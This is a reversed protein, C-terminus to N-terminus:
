EAAADEINNGGTTIDPLTDLDVRVDKIDQAISSDSSDFAEHQIADATGNVASSGSDGDIRGPENNPDLKENQSADPDEKTTSLSGSGIESKAKTESRIIDDLVNAESNSSNSATADAKEIGTPVTSDSQNSDSITTSNNALELEATQLNSVGGITSNDRTADDSAANQAQTSNMTETVNQLFLGSADMSSGSNKSAETSMELSNNGVVLQNNSPSILTLNSLSNDGRETTSSENGKREGSELVLSTGIEAKDGEGLTLGSNEHVETDKVTNNSQNEQQLVERESNQAQVELIGKQSDSGMTQTDHSVASSADDAKYHEERAEHTNLNGGDLDQDDSSNENEMDGEKDEGERGGGEEDAGDEREKEDDVFEDDHETERIKEQDREDIEDDGGGNGEDESALGKNDLEEQEDEEHTNQEEHELEERKNEEEQDDEEHKNEEQGEEAHKMEEDDGRTEEEEEEDPKESRTVGERPLDKRGLKFNEVDTQTRVSVKSEKEDYEKKKDRSHKIQYILWFCVGLLLLIQLVRKVKVGKSRQTRSPSRKLM